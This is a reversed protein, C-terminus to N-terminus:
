AGVPEDHVAHVHAVQRLHRHAAADNASRDLQKFTSRRRQRQLGVGHLVEGDVAAHSFRRGPAAGPLAFTGNTLRGPATTSPDSATLTPTARPPSRRHRDTSRRHVGERHWAHVPRVVGAHRADAVLTAPVTGGVPADAPAEAAHISSRTSSRLRGAAGRTAGSDPGCWSCTASSSRRTRRPARAAASTRSSSSTTACRSRSTPARRAGPEPGLQACHAQEPGLPDRVSSARAARGPQPLDYYKSGSASNGTVYIVGGPGPSWRPRVPSSTPTPRRRRQQDRLQALLQPRPGAPGPRRGPELVRDPLGSPAGQHRRRERAVAPSYIAHHYVLM